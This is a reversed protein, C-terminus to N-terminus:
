KWYTNMCRVPDKQDNYGLQLAAVREAPSGHPDNGGPAADGIAFMAAVAEEFDGGELINNYYATSAWVGAFCDALLENNKGTIPSVNQGKATAQTRLEDVVHHGFEHATIIAAGFDGVRQSPRTFINGTWMQQFTTVPLWIRGTRNDDAGCYVANPTTDTFVANVGNRDKCASVYKEGEKVVTYLVQPEAYGNALFWPTWRSDLDTLVWTLYSDVTYGYNDGTVQSQPPAAGQM